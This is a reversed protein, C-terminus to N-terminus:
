HTGFTSFLFTSRADPLLRKGNFTAAGKEYGGVVYKWGFTTGGSLKMRYTQGPTVVIGDKPMVFLVRDTDSVPVRETVAAIANGATDMVTLTLDDEEVGDNGVVLDVEVATLRDLSPTFTQEVENVLNTWAKDWGATNVQDPAFTAKQQMAQPVPTAATSSAKHHCCILFSLLCLIAAAPHVRYPITHSRQLREILFLRM